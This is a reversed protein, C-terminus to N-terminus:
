DYILFYEESAIMLKHEKKKYMADLKSAFLEASKPDYEFITCLATNEGGLKTFKIDDCNIKLHDLWAKIKSQVEEQKVQGGIIVMGPFLPASMKTFVLDFNTALAQHQKKQFASLGQTSIM